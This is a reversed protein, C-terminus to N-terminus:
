SRSESPPTSRPSPNDSASNLRSIRLCYLLTLLMASPPKQQYRPNLLYEYRQRKCIYPVELGYKSLAYAMEFPSGNVEQGIAFKLHSFMQVYHKINDQAEQYYRADDLEVGIAKGLKVYSQHILDLDYYHSIDCFPIGHKKEM